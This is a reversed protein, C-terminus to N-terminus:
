AAVQQSVPVTVRGFNTDLAYDIITDLYHSGHPMKIGLPHLVATDAADDFITDVWTYPVYVKCGEIGRRALRAKRRVQRAKRPLRSAVTLGQMLSIWQARTALHTDSPKFGGHAAAKSCTTRVLDTITFATGGATLHHSEVLATDIGAFAIMADVLYDVGITDCIERGGHPFVPLQGKAAMRMPVYLVNWNTTRGTARDGAIISPRHISVPVRSTAESRLFREARAKTREYTNRFNRSRDAPLFDPGVRGDHIGAVYATSVHHFRRFRDHRAAADTALEFVHQTGGVNIRHAEDLPLDFSVSAACHFVEVTTSAVDHWRMPGWGLHPEEIDARIWTVRHSLHVAETGLLEQLRDRGRELAADDSSARIPCVVHRGPQALLKVLLEGGVFGTAGTILTTDPTRNKM